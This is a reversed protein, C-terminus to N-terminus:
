DNQEGPVINRERFVADSCHYTDEETLRCIWDGPVPQQYAKFSVGSYTYTNPATEYIPGTGIQFAMRITPKSEYPKFITIM